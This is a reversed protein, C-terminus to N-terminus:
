GPIAEGFDGDLCCASYGFVAGAQLRGQKQAGVVFVWGDKRSAAKCETGLAFSGIVCCATTWLMRRETNSVPGDVCLLGEGLECVTRVDSLSFRKRAAGRVPTM